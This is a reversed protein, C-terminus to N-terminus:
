FVGSRVRGEGGTQRGGEVPKEGGDLLLSRERGVRDLRVSAIQVPVQAVQHRLPDVRQILDPLLVDRLQEVPEVVGAQTRGGQGAIQARDLAEVTKQQHLTHGPVVRAGAQLRGFELALEGVKQADLFHLPEHLSGIEVFQQAPAVAGDEFQEVGRPQPNRFQDGQLAGTQPEVVSEHLDRALARAVAQHGDAPRGDGMHLAVQALHARKQDSGM